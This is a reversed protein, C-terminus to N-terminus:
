VDKGRIDAEMGQELLRHFPRAAVAFVDASEAPACAPVEQKAVFACTLERIDCGCCAYNWAGPQWGSREVRRDEVERMVYRGAEGGVVEAEACGEEVVVIVAVLVEVPKAGREAPSLAGATLYERRCSAHQSAEAVACELVDGDAGVQEVYGADVVFTQVFVFGGPVVGDQKLYAAYVRREVLVALTDRM